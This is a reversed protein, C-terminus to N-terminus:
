YDADVTVREWADFDTRMSELKERAARLAAKGLVLRSPPREATVATIIAEAAKVPNGPATAPDAIANLRAGVSHEYDSIQSNTRKVSTRFETRFPGPEVVLVKIGLGAVEKALSDSLGEVAFKTAAYYGTGPNGVIGAVSSLNVIFGSKRSRMVPLVKRIIEALGFVNTEFLARVTQAEGEEISTTYGHGANNVLVDIRGFRDVVDKVAKDIQASDTVDLELPLANDDHAAIIDSIKSPDRATVAVKWGRSLVKKVLERGFGSSCGTIFWVPPDSETM